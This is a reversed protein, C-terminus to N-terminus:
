DKAGIERWGAFQYFRNLTWGATASCWWTDAPARHYKWTGWKARIVGGGPAVVKLEIEKGDRPATEMPQWTM